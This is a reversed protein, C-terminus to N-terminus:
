PRAQAASQDKDSYICEAAGHAGSKLTEVIKCFALIWLICKTTAECRRMRGSIKTGEQGGSGGESM